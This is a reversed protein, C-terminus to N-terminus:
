LVLLRRIADESMATRRAVLRAIRHIDGRTRALQRRDLRPWLALARAYRAQIDPHLPVRPRPLSRLTPRAPRGAEGAMDDREDSSIELAAALRSANPM